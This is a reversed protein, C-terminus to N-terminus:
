GLGCRVPSPKTKERAGVLKGQAWERAPFFMGSRRAHGWVQSGSHHFRSLHKTCSRSGPVRKSIFDSDSDIAVAVWAAVNSRRSIANSERAISNAEASLKLTEEERSDRDQGAADARERDKRDLWAKVLPIKQRGYVGQALKKRVEGEGTADLTPWLEDATIM